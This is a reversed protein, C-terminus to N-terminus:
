YIASQSSALFLLGPDAQPRMQRSWIVSDNAFSGFMVGLGQLKSSAYRTPRLRSRSAVGSRFDDPGLAPSLTESAEKEHAGKGRSGRTSKSM